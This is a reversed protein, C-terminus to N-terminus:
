KLTADEPTGTFREQVVPLVMAKLYYGYLVLLAGFTLAPVHNASMQFETSASMRVYFLVTYVIGVAVPVVMIGYGYALVTAPRWGGLGRDALAVLWVAIAGFLTVWLTIRVVGLAVAALSAENHVGQVAWQAMEGESVFHYAEGDEQAFAFPVLPVVLLAGAVVFLTVTTLRVAHDGFPRGPPRDRWLVRLRDRGWFVGGGLLLLGFGLNFWPPVGLAFGLEAGYRLLPDSLEQSVWWGVWRTGTLGLLFGVFGVLGLLLFQLIGRLGVGLGRAVDVGVLGSGLVIAGILLGVPWDVLAMSYDEPGVLFTLERADTRDITDHDEDELSITYWVSSFNLMLGVVALVVVAVAFLGIPTLGLVASPRDSAHVPGRAVPADSGANSQRDDEYELDRWREKARPRPRRKSIRWGLDGGGTM